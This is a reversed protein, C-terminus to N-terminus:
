MCAGAYWGMTVGVRMEMWPKMWVRVKMEPWGLM